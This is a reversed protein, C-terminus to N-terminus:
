TNACLDRKSIHIPLGSVPCSEVQCPCYHGGTSVTAEAIDVFCLHTSYILSNSCTQIQYALNSQINWAKFLNCMSLTVEERETETALSM